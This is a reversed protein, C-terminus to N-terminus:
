GITAGDCPSVVGTGGITSMESDTVSIVELLKTMEQTEAESVTEPKLTSYSSLSCPCAVPCGMTSPLHLYASTCVHICICVFIAIAFSNHM